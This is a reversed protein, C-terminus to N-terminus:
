RIKFYFRKIYRVREDADKWRRSEPFASVVTEYAELAKRINRASSNAEYAQGQLFWGEDLRIKASEFFRTLLELAAPVDGAALKQQIDTLLEDPTKVTESKDGTRGPEVTEVPATLVPEDRVYASDNTEEPTGSPVIAAALEFDPARVVTKRGPVPDVVTVSLADQIFEDTLVDYRSFELIYNGARRTRFSFLTDRDEIKRTEYAVGILGSADGLYVWGTGPYWVELMANLPVTVQRSSV